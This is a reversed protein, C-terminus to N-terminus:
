PLTSIGEISSRFAFLANIGKELEDLGGLERNLLRHYLEERASTLQQSNAKLMIDKEHKLRQSIGNLPLIVITSGAGPWRGM